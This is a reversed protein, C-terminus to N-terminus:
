NKKGKEKEKKKEREMNQGSIANAYIHVYMGREGVICVCVRTLYYLMEHANRKWTLWNRCDQM